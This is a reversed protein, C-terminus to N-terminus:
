FPLPDLGDLNLYICILQGSERIEQKHDEVDDKLHAFVDLPKVGQKYEKSKRTM